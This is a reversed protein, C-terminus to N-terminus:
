PTFWIPSTCSREQVTPPVRPDTCGDPRKEVPLSLCKWTTWRCSPNEVVRAYYVAAQNPDFGPDAWTACLSDAGAGRLACTDLDVSAGPPVRAVDHVAQHFAGDSGHWAKIIQVRRLPAGEPDRRAQAVFRLTADAAPRPPLTGGMPVGGPYGRAVLDDRECLDGPLDWGGFLRPAIRTGSTAFADRRTLADFIADRSNEEAWVGALGGASRFASPRRREGITLLESTSAAFKGVFEREAVAGPNGLHTDTSGIFGFAYPNTGIREAERLGEIRVYRVYDLRSVCGRARQAGSGTGEECDELPRGPLDRIKEFDCLEDPVGVVGRLGNRCESEGKYQVMEVIPELGARLRAHARQEELSLDRYWIAFLQGNSLNPNQPDRDRRLRLGHRRV